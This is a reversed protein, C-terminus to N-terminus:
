KCKNIFQHIKNLDYRITKPTLRNPKLLSRYRHTLEWQRLTRPQVGLLKAAEKQNVFKQASMLIGGEM